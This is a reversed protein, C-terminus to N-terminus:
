EKPDPREENLSPSEETTILTLLERATDQKLKTQKAFHGDESWIGDLPLAIGVALFPSDKPDVAEMLYLHAM